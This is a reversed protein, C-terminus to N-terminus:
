LGVDQYCLYTINWKDFLLSYGKLVNLLGRNPVLIM